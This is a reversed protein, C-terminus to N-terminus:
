GKKSAEAMGPLANTANEISDELQKMFAKRDLGPPIPPLLEVTIEGPKKVFNERGWFLGSNLAVPVV